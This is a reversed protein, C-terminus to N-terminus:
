HPLIPRFCKGSKVEYFNQHASDDYASTLFTGGLEFAVEYYANNAFVCGGTDPLYVCVFKLYM